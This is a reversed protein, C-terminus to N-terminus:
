AVSVQSDLEERRQHLRMPRFRPSDTVNPEAALTVTAFGREDLAALVEWGREDTRSPYSGWFVTELYHAVRRASSSFLWGHREAVILRFAAEHLLSNGLPLDDAAPPQIRTTAREIMSLKRLPSTGLRPPSWHERPLLHAAEWFDPITAPLAHFDLALTGRTPPRRGVGGLLPARSAPRKM